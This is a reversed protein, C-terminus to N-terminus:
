IYASHIRDITYLYSFTMTCDWNKIFKYIQCAFMKLIRQNSPGCKHTGGWLTGGMLHVKQADLTLLFKNM